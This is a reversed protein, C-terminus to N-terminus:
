TEQDAVFRRVDTIRDAPVTDTATFIIEYIDEVEDPHVDLETLVQEFFNKEPNSDFDYPTYHFGLEGARTRNGAM